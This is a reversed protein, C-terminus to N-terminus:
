LRADSLNKNITSKLDFIISKNKKIKKFDITKFQDHAVAIIIVNYLKFNLKGILDINYEDKFSVKDVWPDYINTDINM